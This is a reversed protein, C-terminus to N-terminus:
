VFKWNEWRYDSFSCRTEYGWSLLSVEWHVRTTFNLWKAHRIVVCCQKNFIWAIQIKIFGFCYATLLECCLIYVFKKFNSCFQLFYKILVHKFSFIKGFIDSLFLFRTTKVNSSFNATICSRFAPLHVIKKLPLTYKLMWNSFSNLASNNMSSWMLLLVEEKLHNRQSSRLFTWCLRKSLILSRCFVIGFRPLLQSFYFCHFLYHDFSM